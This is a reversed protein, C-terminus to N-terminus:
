VPMPLSFLARANASTLKAIDELTQSRLEALKEATKWVYAPENRKGRFGHPALYPCDTEVMIRDDGVLRAAAQIDASKPFTVIGSFSVYFDIERIEPLVEPGGTFCHFVGRVEGEGVRRLIEFTDPWAERTHLILPKGLERALKVQEAFVERQQEPQSHNYHYDLGCEGIAVNKRHSTFQRIVDASQDNWDKAEHPHLGVACFINDYQEALAVMEEMGNLYVGAQVIQAVGSAFARSIVEERDEAFSDWGLHAHSDVITPPTPSM